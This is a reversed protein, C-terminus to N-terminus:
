GFATYISFAVLGSGGAFSIAALLLARRLSSVEERLAKIDERIETLREEHVALATSHRSMCRELRVIREPHANTTV